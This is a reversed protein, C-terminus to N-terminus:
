TIGQLMCSPTEIIRSILRIADVKDKSVVGEAGDEFYVDNCVHKYQRDFATASSTLVEKDRCRLHVACLQRPTWKLKYEELWQRDKKITSDYHSLMKFCEDRLFKLVHIENRPSVILTSSEDHLVRHVVHIEEPVCFLVRLARLLVTSAVGGYMVYHEDKDTDLQFDTLIHRIATAHASDDCKTTIIEQILPSLDIPVYECTVPIDLCVFGYHKIFHYSGHDSTTYRLYVQSGAQIDSTARFLFADAEPDYAYDHIGEPHHNFMDAFPLLCWSAKSAHRGLNFCRSSLVFMAWCIEDETLPPLDVPFLKACDRFITLVRCQRRKIANVRIPQQLIKTDSESWGEYMLVTNQQKWEKYQTFTPMTQIHTAFRSRGYRNELALFFCMSTEYDVDDLLDHSINYLPSSLEQEALIPTLM